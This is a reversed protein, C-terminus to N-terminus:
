MIFLSETKDMSECCICMSILLFIWTVQISFYVSLEIQVAIVENWFYSLDSGGMVKENLVHSMMNTGSSFSFVSNRLYQAHVSDYEFVEELLM